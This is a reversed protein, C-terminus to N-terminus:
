LLIKETKTEHNREKLVKSYIRLRLNNLRVSYERNNRDTLNETFFSIYGQLVELPYGKAITEFTKKIDRANM